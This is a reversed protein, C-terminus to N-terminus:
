PASPPPTQFVVAYIRARDPAGLPTVRLTMQTLAPSAASAQSTSQATFAAAQPSQLLAGQTDLYVTGSALTGQKAEEILMQAIQASCRDNRALRATKLGLALLPLLSLFCFSFLSISLTAEVLSFGGRKRKEGSGIRFCNMKPYTGLVVGNSVKILLKNRRTV